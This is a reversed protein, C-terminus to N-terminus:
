GAVKQYLIHDSVELSREELTIDHMESCLYDGIRLVLQWVNSIGRMSLLLAYFDSETFQDVSIHTLCVKFRLDAHAWKLRTSYKCPYPHAESKHEINGAYLRIRKLGGGVDLANSESAPSFPKPLLGYLTTSLVLYDDTLEYWLASLSM